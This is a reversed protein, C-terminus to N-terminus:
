ICEVCEVRGIENCSGCKLRAFRNKQRYCKGKCSSCKVIGTGKCTPCHVRLNYKQFYLIKQFTLFYSFFYTSHNVPFDQLRIRLDGCDSMEQLEQSSQLIHLLCNIIEHDYFYVIKDWSFHLSKKYQGLLAQGRVGVYVGDIYLRPLVPFKDGMSLGLKNFLEEKYSPNNYIDRDQM